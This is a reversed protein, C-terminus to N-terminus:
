LVKCRGVNTVPDTVECYSGSPCLIGAEGGCPQGLPSPSGSATSSASTPSKAFSVSKLVQKFAYGLANKQEVTGKPFFAFAVMNKGNQVYVIQGSGDTVSVAKEGGVAMTSGAPLVLLDVKRVRLVPEYSGSGTFVYGLANSQVSWEEPVSFKMQATDLTWQKLVSSPPRVDTAILVPLLSNDNNEQLTGTIM